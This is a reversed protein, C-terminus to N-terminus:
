PREQKEAGLVKVSGELFVSLLTSKAAKPLREKLNAGWFFPLAKVM